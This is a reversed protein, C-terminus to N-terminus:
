MDLYLIQGSASFNNEDLYVDNDPGPLADHFTSGGSETAWHSLDSWNGTGGVWFYDQASTGLAFLCTLATIFLRM